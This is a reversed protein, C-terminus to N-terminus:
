IITTLDLHSCPHHHLPYTRSIDSSPVSLIQQSMQHSTPCFFLFWPLCSPQKNGLCIRAESLSQFPRNDECSGGWSVEEREPNSWGGWAGEKGGLNREWFRAKIFLNLFKIQQSIFLYYPKFHVKELPYVCKLSVTDKLSWLYFGISIGIM